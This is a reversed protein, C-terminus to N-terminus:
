VVSKRDAGAAIRIPAFQGAAPITRTGIWRIPQPGGDHTMVLDGVELEDIRREGDPTLILTGAVFCPITDLTVFATDTVGDENVVSYTFVVDGEDSTAEVFFTYDNQLTIKQGSPLIVTDGIDVPVGNIHTVEVIGAAANDDNSLVDLTKTGGTFISADDDNAVMVSQVSGGGIIVNSDYGSDSADAIGIRITNVQPDNPDTTPIVPITLSMTVTFGDMETNFQDETNDKYLNLTDTGNITTVSANGDGVAMPVYSGNIWVAVVDNYISNTFEPYEDSAFVFQMTLTDGESTFSVDLYSADYTTQGAVANFDANNDVGGSDWSRSGSLNSESSNNTFYGAFGTSLIVGESGPLVNEAVGDEDSYIASSLNDGTYSAGTVTVGEGFITEAMDEASAGYNYDIEVGAVM